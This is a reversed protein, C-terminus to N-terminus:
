SILWLELPLLRCLVTFCFLLSLHLFIDSILSIRFLKKILVFSSVAEELAM